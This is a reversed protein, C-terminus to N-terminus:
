ALLIKYDTGNIKVNWVKTSTNVETTVTGANYSASGVVFQNSATASADRGIVVSSDFNTSQANYGILTNSSGTTNSYHTGYGVSVNYSGSNNLASNLSGIATNNTGTASVYLSRMGIAVNYTGTTNQLLSQFGMSTNNTGTTIGASAEYGVATNGAGTSARLAKWGIATLNTGSTNSYGSEYGIATNNSATNNYLATYGIAINNSGTSNANMSARGISVNGSGTTNSYMAGDGLATNDGGTSNLYLSYRGVGVNKSGNNTYLSQYGIAVNDAGTTNTNLAQYGLVTSTASSGAGLGIRLTNIQADGNVDLLRSPTTTGIGVNGNTLIALRTATNVIDVIQYSGDSANHRTYWTLVNNVSFAITSNNGASSNIQLNLLPNTTGIGVNGDDRVLLSTSANSNQVLLSTTASTSGSGKVHLMATPTLSATTTIATGNTGLWICGGLSGSQTSALSNSGNQAILINSIRAREANYLYGDNRVYFNATSTSASLLYESTSTNTNAITLRAFTSTTNIGVNGTALSLVSATNNQDTVYTPTSSIAVGNQLQLLGTALSTPPTSILINSM